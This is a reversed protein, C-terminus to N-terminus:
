STEITLDRRPRLQAHSLRSVREQVLHQMKVVAIKSFFPDLLARRLKVEPYRPCGFFSDM